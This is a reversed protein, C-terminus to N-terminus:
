RSLASTLTGFADDWGLNRVEIGFLGAAKAAAVKQAVGAADETVLVGPTGDVRTIVAQAEVADDTKQWGNALMLPNQSAPTLAPTAASAAGVAGADAYLYGYFPVTVALQSALLGRKYAYHLAANVSSLPANYRVAGPLSLGLDYTKLSLYSLLPALSLVDVFAASADSVGLTLALQKEPALTARLMQVFLTLDTGSSPSPPANWDLVVGDYGVDAVRSAIAHVLARRARSGALSRAFGTAAAAGDSGLALLTKVGLAQIASTIPRGSLLGGAAWNVTGDANPEAGAHVVHTFRTADVSAPAFGADLAAQPLRGILNV